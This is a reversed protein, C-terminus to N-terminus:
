ISYPVINLEEKQNLYARLINSSDKDEHIITIHKEWKALPSYQVHFPVFGYGILSGKEIQILSKEGKQRGSEIIFFSSNDILLDNIMQQCRINYDSASEEKVCAGNCKKITYQFCTSNTPYLDCLKQCLHYKEVFRHITENAEKKTSFSMIPVANTKRIIACYFRIYSADDEYYFLGYPFKDGKLATNYVPQYQKILSSELLLAILESGTLEFEIRTIEKILQLGKKSKTNKLHQSIRKNIHKSKGIYIIQNFENFFKYIGTKDPIEDLDNVDFNPHFIQPNVDEQIFTELNKLDKDFLLAFLKATAFADGGARHRGILEIGLSRTLKGLSYSELDPLIFRSARVTCLHKRRYDFGLSKFEYRMVTYDFAVNHAVFVCDETFEIIQKAIEYFKPANLVMSNNIGTLNVIFDPINMEPNVLSVFQDIIEKGDSKYIAIETIKSSKPNGGTTEIDIIAYHM